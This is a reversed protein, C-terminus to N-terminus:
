RSLFLSNELSDLIKLVVGNINNESLTEPIAEVLNIISVRRFEKLMDQMQQEPHLAFILGEVTEFAKFYRTIGVPIVFGNRQILNIAETLIPGSKTQQELYTKSDFTGVFRRMLVEYERRIKEMDVDQTKTCLSILPELSDGPNDALLSRFHRLILIREKKSLTGTIGFDIFVLEQKQNFIINAPHPDAHFFGYIHAAELLNRVLKQVTDKGDFKILKLKEQDNGRIFGIIQSLSYGDIYEMTLVKLSSYQEYVKPGRIGDGVKESVENFRKINTAELKYNLEDRTWEEFEKVVKSMKNAPKILFDVTSAIIKLIRMDKNIVKELNPRQVKVAVVEGSNLLGKHVQAFSASAIPKFDFEKFLTNTNTGLEQSIIKEVYDKDFPPVQDLLKYFENCFVDPVFDPRLALMQGFKVFVSGLDELSRRITVANQESVFDKRWPKTKVTVVILSKTIQIIRM